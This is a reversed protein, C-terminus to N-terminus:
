CSKLRWLVGGNYSLYNGISASLFTANLYYRAKFIRNVLNDPKTILRWGQKEILAINVDHLNRFGLGGESKKKCMRELSMRELSMRHIGKDQNKWWFKCMLCEM